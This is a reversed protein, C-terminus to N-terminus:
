SSVLWALVYGPYISNLGSLVIGKQEKEKAELAPTQPVRIDPTSMPPGIGWTSDEAFLNVFAEGTPIASKRINQVTVILEQTGKVVYPTAGSRSEPERFIKISIMKLFSENTPSEYQQISEAWESNDVSPVAEVSIQLTDIAANWVSPIDFAKMLISIPVLVQVPHATGYPISHIQAQDLLPSRPSDIFVAPVAMRISKGNITAFHSGNTLQITQNRGSVFCKKKEFHYELGLLDCVPLLSIIINGKQNEYPIIPYTYVIYYNNIKIFAKSDARASPMAIFITLVFLDILCLFIKRNIIKM